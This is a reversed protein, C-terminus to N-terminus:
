RKSRAEREATTMAPITGVRLDVASFGQSTLVFTM